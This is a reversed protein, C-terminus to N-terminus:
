TSVGFGSGVGIFPFGSTRVKPAGGFNVVNNWNALCTEVTHDCGPSVVCDEAVHIDVFPVNLTLLEGAGYSTSYGPVSDVIMRLQGSLAHRIAGYKAPPSISGGSVAITLGAIEAIIRTSSYSARSKGCQSDYLVHNCLKQARATPLRINLADDTLSPVRLAATHGDLTITTAFGSWMQLAIGSTEQLRQLTVIVGHEPMGQSAFRLILPHTVPLHIILERGTLDQAIEQKDRAMTLATFTYGDYTVDVIHSTVRYTVTPTAITYLDIPRSTAVGIEEDEYDYITAM